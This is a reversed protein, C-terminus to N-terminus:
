LAFRETHIRRRPIGFTRLARGVDDMMTGPGCLFARGGRDAETLLEGLMRADIHGKPGQWDEQRTMVYHVTLNPMRAALEDLEQRFLLDEESHNSWVLTARRNPETDGLHRLMSLMPTVGIGGAVFILPEDKKARLVYSFRGFPGLLEGVGYQGLRGLTATFDGSQKITHTVADHRTPSSSITFPHEERPVGAKRFRLFAFQGPLYRFTKGGAPVLEVNITNHNVMEASRLSFTRGGRRLSRIVKVWIFGGGYAVLGLVWVVRPVDWVGLDVGLTFAHVVGVAVLVFTLRHIWRWQNYRLGLFTRWIATCVILWVLVLASAGLLQPWYGTWGMQELSTTYGTRYFILFPHASALVCATAGVVGHVRYLRDLGFARDLWRVRASLSFQLMFLALAVLAVVRGATLTLPTATTHSRTGVLAAFAVVAVAIVVAILRLLWVRRPRQAPEIRGATDNM